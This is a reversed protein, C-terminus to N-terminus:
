FQTMVKQWTRPMPMDNQMNRLEPNDPEPGDEVLSIMMLAPCEGTLKTWVLATAGSEQEKQRTDMEETLM